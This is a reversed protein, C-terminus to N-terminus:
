HLINLLSRVSAGLRCLHDALRFPLRRQRASLEEIRRQLGFLTSWLMANEGAPLHDISMYQRLVRQHNRYGNTVRSFGESRHRYFFLYDPVVGVRQGVKVLKVFAEWDEFSTGRDTEFGGVARFASTRFIANGDGYINRISALTHPGGTPRYAYSFETQQLPDGNEFALFYCSMASMEPNRRMATVFREVMDPRAINDADMPIFFEGQAEFLGRNRTAGIGANAHRLFRFHPYASEMEELTRLSAPDTSGDDIVLVELRPYTQGALSRLTAPLFRGLNYHPVAVTVLPTKIPKRNSDNPRSLGNDRIKWGIRRVFQLIELSPTWQLDAQEFAFREAFDITLEELGTPWRQEGDRRWPSCGDLRVALTVDAFGLGARKAQITRFGLGGEAAFEVIACPKKRLLQELAYRVRDSHDAPTKGFLNPVALSAPLPWDLVTSFELGAQRCHSSAVKDPSTLLFHVRWGAERLGIGQALLSSKSTLCGSSDVVFCIARNRDLM